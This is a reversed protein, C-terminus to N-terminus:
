SRMPTLKVVHGMKRGPRAERKGYLHLKVGNQSAWQPWDSVDDGILNIMEANAFREPSGLPWNAIARIHQEFQSTYCADQTWHGSNHVRPAMENALVKGGPLLFFEIAGVGVYDLAEMVRRTAAAAEALAAAPAAAPAVTRHLIHNRHENESAEFAAFEGNASRAAVISFEKEFPAMAELICPANFREFAARLEAETTVKAQGKGDYGLRRTKLISPFGIKAAAAAVDNTSDLLAFAVTPAGAENLMQKEPARDQTIELVKLSPAVRAGAALAAELASSPINEFEFTLVDVDKVFAAIAASDEYRAVTVRAAVRAAPSDEEPTFIHTEFGLEAAALALMRGLQGGGLIGITAGTPLPAANSSSM